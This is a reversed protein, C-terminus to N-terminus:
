EAGWLTFRCVRRATDRGQRVCDPAGIGRYSSGCLFLGPYAALEADLADLWDAHDVKYQPMGEQWRHVWFREPSGRIGLIPRLSETASEVLESDSHRLFSDGGSWGMFSRLLVFGDPNREPWKSSM